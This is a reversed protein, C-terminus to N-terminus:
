LCCCFSSLVPMLVSLLSRSPFYEDAPNVVLASLLKCEWDVAVWLAADLFGACMSLATPKVHTSRLYSFQCPRVRELQGPEDRCCLLRYLRAQQRDSHRVTVQLPFPLKRESASHLSPFLKVKSAFASSCFVRNATCPFVKRTQSMQNVEQKMAWNTKLYCSDDLHMLHAQTFETAIPVTDAVSFLASLASSSSFIRPVM